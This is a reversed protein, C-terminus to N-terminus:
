GSAPNAFDSRSPKDLSLSSKINEDLRKLVQPLLFDAIKQQGAESYHEYLDTFFNSSLSDSLDLFGANHSTAAARINALSQQFLAADFTGLVRLRDVNIPTVYFIVPIKRRAAADAFATLLELMKNNEDIQMPYVTLALERTLHSNRLEELLHKENQGVLTRMIFNNRAIEKDRVKSLISYKMGAPYLSWFKFELRLRSMMSIHELQMPNSVGDGFHELLPALVSLESFDWNPDDYVAPAFMRWNIPVIIFLPKYKEARCLLCYFEFMSAGAFSWDVVRVEQMAPGLSYLERQLIKPANVYRPDRQSLFPGAVSSDGFFFILSGANDDNSELSYM